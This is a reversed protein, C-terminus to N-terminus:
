AQPSTRRIEVPRRFFPRERDFRRADLDARRVRLANFTEDLEREIAALKQQDAPSLGHSKGSKTFLTARDNALTTLRRSLAAKDNLPQESTMYWGEISHAPQGAGRNHHSRGFM